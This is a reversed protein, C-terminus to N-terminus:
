NLILLLMNELSVWEKLRQEYMTQLVGNLCGEFGKFDLETYQWGYNKTMHALMVRLETSQTVPSYWPCDGEKFRRKKHKLSFDVLLSNAMQTKSPTKDGSLLDFFRPVNQASYKRGPIYYRNPVPVLMAEWKQKGERNKIKALGQVLADELKNQRKHHHITVDLSEMAEKETQSREVENEIGQIEKMFDQIESDEHSENAVNATARTARRSARTERRSLGATANALRMKSKILSSRQRADNEEHSGM